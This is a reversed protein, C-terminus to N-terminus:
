QFFSFPIDMELMGDSITMYARVEESTQHLFGYVVNNFWETVYVLMDIIYECEITVDKMNLAAVQGVVDKVIIIFHHYQININVLAVDLYESEILDVFEQTKEAVHKLTEGLKELITDLSEMKKVFDVMKEFIIAIEKKVVVLFQNSALADGVPMRLNVNMIMEIFANYCFQMNVSINQIIKELVVAISSTVERLFEPVTTLKDSGPLKFKTERLLKTVANIFAQVAKQYQIVTNRFFISLQSMQLKYNVLTNYVESVGTVAAMKSEEVLRTVQYKDAFLTVASLISPIRMKLEVLMTRPVEMNYAVQLRMRDADNVTSRIGLM